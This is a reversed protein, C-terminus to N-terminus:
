KILVFQKINTNGEEASMAGPEDGLATYGNAHGNAAGGAWKEGGGPGPAPTTPARRTCCALPHDKGFMWKYFTPSILALPSLLLGFPPPVPLYEMARYEMLTRVRNFFYEEEAKEIYRTYTSGMMAILLNVLLVQSVLVFVWLLLVGM